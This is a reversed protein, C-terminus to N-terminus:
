YQLIVALADNASSSKRVSCLRCLEHGGTITAAALKALTPHSALM